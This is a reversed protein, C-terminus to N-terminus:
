PATILKVEVPIESELKTGKLLKVANKVCLSGMLEPQQAVTGALEGVKIAALGDPTADFGVVLPNIQMGASRAANIAVIVGLAMEDNAAFVADIEPVRQLIAAFKDAAIERSWNATEEAVITVDPAKAIAEAFGSARQLAADSGLLGNIQVVKGQGKLKEIIYKGALDGGFKNDSGIFSAVKQSSAPDLQIRNDINLVPISNQNATEVAPLIAESDAPVICIADAGASILNEVLDVQAASDEVGAIPAQFELRVGESAAAKEAGDKMSVFFPNSLTPAVFAVFSQKTGSSAVTNDGSRGSYITYGSWIIGVVFVTLVLSLLNKSSM